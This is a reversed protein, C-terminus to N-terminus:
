PTQNNSGSYLSIVSVNDQDLMFTLTPSSDGLAPDAWYILDYESDGPDGYAELISQWSSGVTIGRVTTYRSSTLDIGDILDVGNKTITYVVLDDYEYTKDTGEYLCSPA